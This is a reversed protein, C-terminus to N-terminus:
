GRFCTSGSLPTAPSNETTRLTSRARRGSRLRTLRESHSAPFFWSRQFAHAPCPHEGGISGRRVPPHGVTLRCRRPSSSFASYPRNARLLSREPATSLLSRRVRKRGSR